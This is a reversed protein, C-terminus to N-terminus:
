AAADDAYPDAIGLRALARKEADEMLAAQADDMHDYGFLHFIGHVVLHTLHDEFRKGELKAEGAVTEFSLVVDGLMAGASEGPQIDEGPFSLVNTPKDQARWDRNIERIEADDTFLLSLEAGEPFRLGGEMRAAGFARQVLQRLEVEDPWEGGRVAIDIVPTL